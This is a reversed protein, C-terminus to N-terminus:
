RLGDLRSLLLGILILAFIAIGYFYFLQDIMGKFSAREAADLFSWDKNEEVSSKSRLERLRACDRLVRFWQYILQAGIPTSLIFAVYVPASHWHRYVLYIDIVVCGLGVASAAWFSASRFPSLGGRDIFKGAESM